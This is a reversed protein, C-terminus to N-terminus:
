MAMDKMKKAREKASYGTVYQLYQRFRRNTDLIVEDNEITRDSETDVVMTKGNKGASVELRKLAGFQIRYHGESEQPECNFYKELGEVMKKEFDKTYGRKIPYEQM